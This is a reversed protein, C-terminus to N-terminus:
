NSLREFDNFARYGTSAVEVEVKKSTSLEIEYHADEIHRVDESGTQLMHNSTLFQLISLSVFFNLGPIRPSFWLGLESNRSIRKGTIFTNSM